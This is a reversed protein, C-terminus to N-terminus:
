FDDEDKLDYAQLSRFQALQRVRETESDGRLTVRIIIGMFCLLFMLFIAFGTWFSMEVMASFIESFILSVIISFVLAGLWGKGLELGLQLRNQAKLSSPRLLAAILVMLGVFSGLNRRNRGKSLGAGNSTLRSRVVRFSILNAPRRITQFILRM